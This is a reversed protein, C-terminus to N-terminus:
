PGGSNSPRSPLPPHVVISDFTENPNKVKYITESEHTKFRIQGSFSWVSRVRPDDALSRLTAHNKTTLDEFISYKNRVRHSTPDPVTPLAEKKHKFVLNRVIDSALKVIVPCSPNDKKAPLPICRSILLHIPFNLAESIDGHRIATELCPQIVEKFVIEPIAPQPTSSTIPLGLIRLTTSRSDQDIKNIHNTLQQITEDRKVLEQRLMSNEALLGEMKADIEDIKPLKGCIVDLKANMQANQALLQAITEEM